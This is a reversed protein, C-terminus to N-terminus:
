KLLMFFSRPIDTIECIFHFITKVGRILEDNNNFIKDLYLKDLPKSQLEYEMLILDIFRLLDTYQTPYKNIRLILEFLISAYNPPTINIVPIELPIEIDPKSRKIMSCAYKFAADFIEKRKKNPIDGSSLADLIIEKKEEDKFYLTEKVITLVALTLLTILEYIAMKIIRNEEPESHM